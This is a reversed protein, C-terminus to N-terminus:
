LALRGLITQITEKDSYPRKIGNEELYQEDGKGAVVIQDSANAMSIAKSLAKQRDLIIEYRSDTGLFGMEIESAIQAPDESRSNDSTIITYDALSASVRGMVARKFKDREGGCGFVCILNGTKSEKVTELLNKLADATHAFDIIIRCIGDIVQYRGDPPSMENFANVISATSASLARAASIAALMNYVNFMGNFKTKLELVDDCVNVLCKIGDCSEIDIAFIDAPNTIGYSCTVYGYEIRKDYIIKGLKDDVNVVAYKASIDYFLSEKVQAYMEIDGFFDLHDHSLNTFIAVDFQIGFAKKLYIAHASLEMVVYKVGRQYSKEFIEHLTIPDPTTLGYYELTGDVLSGQTGIITVKHGASALVSSTMYATTTKGNTGTIAVIRLNRARNNFMNGAILAMAIRADRVQIYGCQCFKPISELVVCVAGNAIAEEIYDEGNHKTGRLAFFIGGPKVERSDCALNSIELEADVRLKLLKVQEIVKWLKM